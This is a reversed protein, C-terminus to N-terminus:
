VKAVKYVIDFVVKKCNFVKRWPVMEEHTAVGELVDLGTVSGFEQVEAMTPILRAMWISTGHEDCIGYEQTLPLDIKENIIRYVILQTTEILQTVFLCFM